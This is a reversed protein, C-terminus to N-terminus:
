NGISYPFIPGKINAMSGPILERGLLRRSSTEDDLFVNKVMEKSFGFHKYYTLEGILIARSWGNERAKGLSTDILLKGLGEGQRTPHIGLPGLLLAKLKQSGLLIPWFRIVGVLVEYDDRLVYCLDAVCKIGARFRYSSLTERGLGFVIDLLVEIEFSDCEQEQLIQIM